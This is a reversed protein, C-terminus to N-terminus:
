EKRNRRPTTNAPNQSWPSGMKRKESSIHSVVVVIFGSWNWSWSAYINARNELAHKVVCRMEVSERERERRRRRRKREKCCM